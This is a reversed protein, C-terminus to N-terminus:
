EDIERFAFAEDNFPKNGNSIMINGNSNGARPYMKWGLGILDLAINVWTHHSIV